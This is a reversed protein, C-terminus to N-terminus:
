VLLLGKHNSTLKVTCSPHLKQEASSSELPGSSPKARPGARPGIALRVSCQHPPILSLSSYSVRSQGKRGKAEGRGEGEGRGGKRKEEREQQLHFGPGQCALGHEVM